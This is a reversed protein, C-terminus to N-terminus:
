RMSRSRLSSSMTRTRAMLLGPPPGHRHLSVAGLPESLNGSLGMFLGKLSGAIGESCHDILALGDGHCPAECGAHALEEPWRLLSNAYRPKRYVHQCYLPIYLVVISGDRYTVKPSIHQELYALRAENIDDCDYCGPETTGRYWEKWTRYEPITSSFAQAM